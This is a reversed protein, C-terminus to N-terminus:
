YQIDFGEFDQMMDELEQLEKEFEEKDWEMPEYEGGDDDWEFGPPVTGMDFFEVGEPVEFLSDDLRDRRCSVDVEEDYVVREDEESVYFPLLTDNEQLPIKMGENGAWFYYVNDKLLASELFGGFVEENEPFIRVNGAKIHVTLEEEEMYETEPTYFTCTVSGSGFYANEIMAMQDDIGIPSKELLFYVGAGVVVLVAVIIIINKM